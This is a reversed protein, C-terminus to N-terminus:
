GPNDGTDFPPEPACVVKVTGGGAKDIEGKFLVYYNDRLGETSVRNKKLQGIVWSGNNILNLQKYRLRHTPPNCNQYDIFRDDFLISM